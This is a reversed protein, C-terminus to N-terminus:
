WGKELMQESKKELESNRKELLEMESLTKAMAQDKNSIPETPTKPVKIFEVNKNNDQIEKQM